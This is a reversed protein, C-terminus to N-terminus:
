RRQNERASTGAQGGARGGAVAVIREALERDTIGVLAAVPRGVARGLTERTGVSATPVARGAEGLRRGARESADRAVVLAGLRGKRSAARVADAGM